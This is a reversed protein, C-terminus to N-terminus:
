SASSSQMSIAGSSLDAAALLMAATSDCRSPSGLRKVRELRWTHNQKEQQQHRSPQVPISNIGKGAVAAGTDKTSTSEWRCSRDKRTTNRKWRREAPDKAGRTSGYGRGGFGIKRNEDGAGAAHDRWRRKDGWRRTGRGRASARVASRALISVRTAGRSNTGAMHISPCCPWVPTQETGCSIGQYRKICPRTTRVTSEVSLRRVRLTLIASSSPICGRLVLINRRPCSSSPGSSAVKAPLPLGRTM